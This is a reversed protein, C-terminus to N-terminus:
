VQQSRGLHSKVEEVAAVSMLLAFSLLWVSAEAWFANRTSWFMLDSLFVPVLLAIPFPILMPHIPHGSIKATTAVGLLYHANQDAM